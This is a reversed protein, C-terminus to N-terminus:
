SVKVGLFGSINVGGRQVDASDSEEQQSLTVANAKNKSLTAASAKNKQCRRPAPKPSSCRARPRLSHKAAVGAWVERAKM